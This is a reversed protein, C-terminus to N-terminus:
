QNESDALSARHLNLPQNSGENDVAYPGGAYTMLVREEFQADKNPITCSGTM